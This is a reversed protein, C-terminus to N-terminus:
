RKKDLKKNISNLLTIISGMGYFFVCVLFAIFWITLTLSFNFETTTCTQSYLGSTTGCSPFVNGFIIGICIGAGMIILAVVQYNNLEQKTVEDTVKKLRPLDKRLKEIEDFMNM